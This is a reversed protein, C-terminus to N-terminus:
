FHMNRCLFNNKKSKAQDCHKLASNLWVKKIWGGGAYGRRGTNKHSMM